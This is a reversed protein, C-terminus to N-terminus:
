CREFVKYLDTLNALQLLSRDSLMEKGPLLIKQIARYVIHEVVWKWSKASSSSDHKKETTVNCDEYSFSSHMSNDMDPKEECLKSTKELLEPMDIYGKRISYFKAFERCLTRFCDIESEWDVETTLRLILMPLGDLCPEYDPLLMPLGVINGNKDLEFSFYDTLMERKSKLFDVVHKALDHKNGNAPQWGSEDSDLALMVLDFTPAVESLRYIGYNGFDFILIQYFLEESLKTTNALFLKTEHQILALEPDICGVWVHNGILKVLDSQTNEKIQQQLKLVSTLRIARRKPFSTTTMGACESEQKESSKPKTTIASPGDLCAKKLPPGKLENSETTAFGESNKHQTTTSHAEDIVEIIDSPSNTKMSDASSFSKFASHPKLFADLKQLKGDTRVMEHAYVKSDCHSTPKTSKPKTFEISVDPLLAQTYFTRSSNCGRLHTEVARQISEIIEEENLFHVEHKTPHVNVDINGPSIVLSMYVFPHSGKPLYAQYVNSLSRKLSQCDVLRNNIFLLFIFKKMSYNANSIYGHMKYRLSTSDQEIHILDKAVQSGYIVGINDLITSGHQTRVSIGGSPGGEGAKRLTFSVGANHISYKSVVAAIRQHEDCSNNLAKRRTPVNYFLDEVTIQTGVSGATPRPSDKMRGDIYLAKYSCKSDKTRTCITLHSVHSISALAEGRFGFTAISRLDSFERLKSTTFRECVIEMDEKRIGHGDDCIQLMKLGGAKVSVTISKSGADLSNELMEKIANSPRQIVEGAAIRNVVDETLKKIAPHESIDM